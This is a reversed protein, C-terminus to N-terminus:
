GQIAPEHALTASPRHSDFYVMVATILGLVVGPLLSRGGQAIGGLSDFRLSDNVPASGLLILVAVVILAWRWLPARTRIYLITMVPIGVMLVALLTFYVAWGLSFNTEVLTQHVITSPPSTDCAPSTPSNSGDFMCLPSATAIALRPAFLFYAIGAMGAVAAGAAFLLELATRASRTSEPATRRRTTNPM